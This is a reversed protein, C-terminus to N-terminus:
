CESSGAGVEPERSRNGAGLERDRGRNGAGQWFKWNEAKGLSGAGPERSGDGLGQRMIAHKQKCPQWNRGEMERGSKLM